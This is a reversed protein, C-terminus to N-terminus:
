RSGSLKVFILGMVLLLVIGAVLFGIATKMTMMTASIVYPAIELVPKSEGTLTLSERLFGQIKSDMKSVKGKIVIGEKEEGSSVSDTKSKNGKKKSNKATKGSEEEFGTFQEAQAEFREAIEGSCKIAMVKQGVLVAYYYDSSSSGSGDEKDYEEAFSGLNSKVEGGVVAGKKLQSETLTEYPIVTKNNDILGVIGFGIFIVGMVLLVLILRSLRRM